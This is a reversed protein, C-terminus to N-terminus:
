HRTLRRSRSDTVADRGNRRWCRTWARRRAGCCRSGVPTARSVTPIPFSGVRRTSGPRGMAATLDADSRGALDDGFHGNALIAAVAQRFTWGEVLMIPYQLVRGSALREIVEGPRMEQSLEFEGAKLHSGDGRERVLLLLYYPHSILKRETLDNAVQRWGNGRTVEIVTTPETLNVPAATFRRYDLWIGGALTCLGLLLLLSVRWIM